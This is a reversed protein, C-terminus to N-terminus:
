VKGWGIEVTPARRRQDRNFPGDQCHNQGEHRSPPFTFFSHFPFQYIHSFYVGGSYYCERPLVHGSGREVRKDSIKYKIEESLAKAIMPIADAAPPRDAIFQELPDECWARAVTSHTCVYLIRPRRIPETPYISSIILCPSCSSRMMRARQSGSDISQVRMPLAARLGSSGRNGGKSDVHTVDWDFVVNMVRGNNEVNEGGDKDPFKTAVLLSKPYLMAGERLVKMYEKSKDESSVTEYGLTSLVDCHEKIISKGTTCENLLAMRVVLEDEKGSDSGDDSVEVVDLRFQLDSIDGPSSVLPISNSYCRVGVPRSFFVARTFDSQDMHIVLERKVSYM